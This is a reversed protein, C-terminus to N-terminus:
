EKGVPAALLLALLAARSPLTGVDVHEHDAHAGDGIVGLGDLVPVDAAILNGDSAGGVAAGRIPIGLALGAQEAADLLAEAGPTPEMPPRGFGGTVAIETGDLVPRLEHLAAHVRRADEVRSARAEVVVNAEPAVVNARLGGEVTGVNVTVGRRPDNLADIRQIQHSAELIASVGREPDIGAHAARGRVRLEYHGVGKRAVKLAGDPGFSPELVYARRALRAVCRLLPLSDPSGVEEDGTLVVVPDAPLRLGLERIARLAYVALVIGGKMDFAGPGYFRGREERPPMRELTGVPWVTDLHGLLLQRPGGPRRVPPRGLLRVNSRSSAITCRLGAASLEAAAFEAARRLREEDGSPSEIAVLASLSEVMRGRQAELWALLEAAVSDTRM